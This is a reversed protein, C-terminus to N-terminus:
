RKGFYDFPIAEIEVEAEEILAREDRRNRKRRRKEKSTEVAENGKGTGVTEKGKSSGDIDGIAKLISNITSIPRLKNTDPDCGYYTIRPYTNGMIGDYVQNNYCAKGLNACYEKMQSVSNDDDGTVQKRSLVQRYVFALLDPARKIGRKVSADVPVTSLFISDEDLLGCDRALEEEPAAVIRFTLHKRDSPSAILPTSPVAPNQAKSAVGPTAQQQQQKLQLQVLQEDIIGDLTPQWAAPNVTSISVYRVDYSDPDGVYPPNTTGLGPTIPLEGEIVAM